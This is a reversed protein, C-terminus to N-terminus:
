IGVPAATGGPTNVTVTVSTLVIDTSAATTATIILFYALGIAVTTTLGTESSAFVADATKSIQTIGSGITAAVNAAATITNSNLQADITVTNGGSEIQGNVSFATIQDGIQLGNIPVVLTDATASAALTALEAIDVGSPESDWGVTATAGAQSGGTIMIERSSSFSVLQDKNGQSGGLATRALGLYHLISM